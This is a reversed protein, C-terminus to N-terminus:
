TNVDNQENARLLIYKFHSTPLNYRRTGRNQVFHVEWLEIGEGQGDDIEVVDCRTPDGQRVTKLLAKTYLKRAGRLLTGEQEDLLDLEKGSTPQVGGRITFVTDATEAYVGDV